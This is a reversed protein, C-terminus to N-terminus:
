PEHGVANRSTGWPMVARRKEGLSQKERKDEM